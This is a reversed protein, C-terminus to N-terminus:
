DADRFTGRRARSSVIRPAVVGFGYGRIGAEQIVAAWKRRDAVITAKLEAPTGIITDMGNELFRKQM